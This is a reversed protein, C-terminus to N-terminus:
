FLNAAKKMDNRKWLPLKDFEQIKMGFIEFFSDPSLHRELRTRDVDKPLKVRGGNSVKLVEYPYVKISFRDTSTLRYGPPFRPLSLFNHSFGPLSATQTSCSDPDPRHFHQPSRSLAPSYSHRCWM